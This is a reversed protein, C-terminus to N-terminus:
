VSGVSSHSKKLVKKKSCKKKKAIAKKSVWCLGGATTYKQPALTAPGVVGGGKAPRPAGGARSVDYVLTIEINRRHDGASTHESALSVTKPIIATYTPAPNMGCM